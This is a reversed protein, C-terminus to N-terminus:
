CEGDSWWYGRCIPMVGVLLAANAGLFRSTETIDLMRSIGFSEPRLLTPM